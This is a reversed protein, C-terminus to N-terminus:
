SLYIDLFGVGEADAMAGAVWCGPRKALGASGQGLKGVLFDALPRVPQVQGLEGLETNVLITASHQCGQLLQRRLVVVREKALLHLGRTLDILLVAECPQQVVALTGPDADRAVAQGLKNAAVHLPVDLVESNDVHLRVVTPQMQLHQFANRVLHLCTVDGLQIHLESSPNSSSLQLLMAHYIGQHLGEVIGLATDFTAEKGSGARASM